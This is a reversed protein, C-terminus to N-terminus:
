FVKDLMQKKKGFGGDSCIQRMFWVSSMQMNCNVVELLKLVKM